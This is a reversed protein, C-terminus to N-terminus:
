PLSAGDAEALRRAVQRLNKTYDASLPDLVEVKGGIAKAVQNAMRRDFQPQIFVVTIGDQRAQEILNALARAGPEKGDSEIAIQVLGYRDAFHGWAPHYVMFRPTTLDSLIERIEEDLADLEGALTQYGSEFTARDEPALAILADRVNFAMQKALLPSTWAHPDHGDHTAHGETAPAPIGERADLVLMTPNTSRIRTMWANEFPVGSRVYLDARALDKVQRPMPEYTAPSFGPQVMSRVQVRPGGVREVLYKLPPVSVMVRLPEAAGNAPAVLTLLLVFRWM